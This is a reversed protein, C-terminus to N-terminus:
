FFTWKPKSILARAFSILQQEGESFRQTWNCVCDLENILTDMKCFNLILEM